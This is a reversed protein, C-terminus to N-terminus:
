RQANKSGRIPRLQCKVSVENQPGKDTMEYTIWLEAKLNLESHEWSAFLQRLFSGATGTEKIILDEWNRQCIEFSPHWGSGNFFADYFELVDTPPYDTQVYYRISKTETTADFFKHFNHGGKYIPIIVTSYPDTETSDADSFSLLICTSLCLSFIFGTMIKM